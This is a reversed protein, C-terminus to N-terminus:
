LTAHAPLNKGAPVRIRHESRSDRCLIILSHRVDQRAAFQKGPALVAGRDPVAARPARWRYRGRVPGARIPIGEAAVAYPVRGHERAVVARFRGPDVAGTRCMHAM